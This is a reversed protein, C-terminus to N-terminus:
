TVWSLGALSDVSALQVRHLEVVAPDGPPREPVFVCCPILLVRGGGAPAEQAETNAEKEPGRPELM